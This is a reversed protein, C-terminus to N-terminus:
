GISRVHKWYGQYWLQASPVSGSAGDHSWFLQANSTSFLLALALAILAPLARSSSVMSHHTSAFDYLPTIHRYSLRPHPIPCLRQVIEISDHRHARSDLYARTISWYTITVISIALLFTFYSVFRVVSAFLAASHVTPLCFSIPSRNAASASAGVRAEGSAAQSKWKAGKVVKLIRVDCLECCFRWVFIARAQLRVVCEM